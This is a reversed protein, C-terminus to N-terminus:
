AELRKRTDLPMYLSSSKLPIKEVAGASSPKEAGNARSITWKFRLGELSTFTNNEADFGYLELNQVEEVNMIRSKTFIAIRKLDRIRVPIRVMGTSEQERAMIHVTSQHAGKQVLEM